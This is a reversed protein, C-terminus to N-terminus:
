ASGITRSPSALFLGDVGAAAEPPAEVTLRLADGDREVAFSAFACCQAEFNAFERLDREMAPTDPLWFRAGTETREERRALRRLARIRTAQRVAEEATATCAIPTAQSTAAAMPISEDSAPQDTTERDTM